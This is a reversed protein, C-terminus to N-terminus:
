SYVLLLLFFLLFFFQNLSCFVFLCVLLALHNESQIFEELQYWDGTLMGALDGKTVKIIGAGAINQTRLIEFSPERMGRTNEKLKTIFTEVDWNRFDTDWLTTNITDIFLFM